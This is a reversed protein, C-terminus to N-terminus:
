AIHIQEYDLSLTETDQTEPNELITENHMNKIMYLLTKNIHVTYSTYKRNEHLYLIYM